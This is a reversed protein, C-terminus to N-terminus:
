GPGDERVRGCSYGVEERDTILDSRMSHTPRGRNRKGQPNWTLVQRTISSTPKESIGLMALQYSRM